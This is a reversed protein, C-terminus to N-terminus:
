QDSGTMVHLENKARTYAVYRLNEEQQMEMSTKARPHPFMENNIIFIRDYELGKSRHATMLTIVKTKDIKKYEASGKVTDTDIGKFRKRLYDIFDQSDRIQMNLKQDVYGTEGLYSIVSSIAETVRQMEALDDAKSLKGAWKVALSQMHSTMDQALQDIPVINARRGKGTVAEVQDILEKSFDRGIIAFDMNARILDLASSALDANTRSIFATEQSLKGGSKGWEDQLNYMAEDYQKDTTVVGEKDIGAQLNDVITNNNVFNVVSKSCRYNVPLPLDSGGSPLSNVMQNINGFANSDAGRFAYIAQNPDGVGVIRAGSAALKQLMVQQCMNFDQIEDAMVVDYKPWNLNDSMAAYWLTDDHDRMSAYEPNRANGPWSYHLADLVKDILQPRFDRNSSQQETSLDTDIAYQDIINNIKGEADGAKPDVAFSKALSAINKITKKAQYLLRRPFTTDHELLDDIIRNIREGRQDWIDTQEISGLDASKNLVQGLFSHSTKVEVHKPFKQQAEVQNKKNFVLYLWKEAPDKYSALHELMTTKGTGALANMTINKDTDLFTSEVAKQHESIMNEPIRGRVTPQGTEGEEANENAVEQQPSQRLADEATPGYIPAGAENRVSTVFGQIGQEPVQGQNGSADIWMWTGDQQKSMAIPSGNDNRTALYWVQQIPQQSVNPNQAPQQPNTQSQQDSQQWQWLTNLPISLSQLIGQANSDSLLDQCKRWFMAQGNIRDFRLGAQQLQNKIHFTDGIVSFVDVLGLRFVNTRIDGSAMALHCWDRMENNKILSRRYWNM